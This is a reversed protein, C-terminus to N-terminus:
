KKEDGDHARIEALTDKTAEVAQEAAAEIPNNSWIGAGTMAGKEAALAREQQAVMQEILAITGPVDDPNRKLLLLLAHFRADANNRAHRFLQIQGELRAIAKGCEEREKILLAEQAEIRADLKGIRALLDIRLATEGDHEVARAETNARKREPIGKIYVTALGILGVVVGAFTGWQPLTGAPLSQFIQM